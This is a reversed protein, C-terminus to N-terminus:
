KGVCQRYQAVAAAAEQQAAAERASSDAQMSGEFQDVRIECQAILGGVASVVPISLNRIEYAQAQLCAALERDPQGPKAGPEPWAPPAACASQAATAERCAAVLTLAAVAISM